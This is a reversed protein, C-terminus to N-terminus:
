LELGAARTWLRTDGHHYLGGATKKRRRGARAQTIHRTPNGSMGNPPSFGRSPVLSPAVASDALVLVPGPLTLTKVAPNFLM